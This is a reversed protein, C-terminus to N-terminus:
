LWLVQPHDLYGCMANHKCAAIVADTPSAGNEMAGKATEAGVGIAYFRDLLKEMGEKFYHIYIGDPKLILVEINKLGPPRGKCGDQWWQIYKAAAQCDGAVGIIVPGSDTSILFLKETHHKVGNLGTVQTDSAMSYRDCAIVTM